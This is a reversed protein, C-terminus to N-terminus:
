PRRIEEKPVVPSLSSVERKRDRNSGFQRLLAMEEDKISLNIGFM